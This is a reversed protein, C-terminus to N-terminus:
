KVKLKSIKYASEQKDPLIYDVHEVSPDPSWELIPDSLPHVLPIGLQDLVVVDFHIRLDCCRESGAGM